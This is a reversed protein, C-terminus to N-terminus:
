AEEENETAEGAFAILGRERGESHLALLGELSPTCGLRVLELAIATFLPGTAAGVDGTDWVWSTDAADHRVARGRAREWERLRHREGNVDSLTWDLQRGLRGQLTELMVTMAEAVNPEDESLATREEGVEVDLIKGVRDTAGRSLMLFAAGESPIFGNDAGIAHLRYSEDLWRLVGPDYYTDVGGVCVVPVQADLLVEARRLASAFGAHGARVVTSRRLDLATGSQEALEAIARSEFRPGDDPRGKEPLCLVLPLPREETPVREPALTSVAEALAPAGLAMMRSFGFLREGLGGALAIGIEQGRRDRFKVARPELKRARTCMAVQLSGLGIAGRAGLGIVDAIM